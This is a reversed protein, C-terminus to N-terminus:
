YDTDNEKKIIDIMNVGELVEFKADSNFLNSTHLIGLRIKPDMGKFSVYRIYNGDM